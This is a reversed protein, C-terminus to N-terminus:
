PRWISNNGLEKLSLEKRNSAREMFTGNDNMYIQKKRAIAKVFTRDSLDEREDWQYYAGTDIMTIGMDEHITTYTIGRWWPDAQCNGTYIETSDILAGTSDFSFLYPYVDDGLYGYLVVKLNTREHVLGSVSWGSPGFKNSHPPNSRPHHPWLGCRTSFPLSIVELEQLYEAFDESSEKLEKDKVHRHCSTIALLFLLYFWKMSTWIEWFNM